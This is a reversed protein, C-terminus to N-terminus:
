GRQPRPAEYAWGLLDAKVCAPNVCRPTGLPHTLVGADSPQVVYDRVLSSQGCTTCPAAVAKQRTFM